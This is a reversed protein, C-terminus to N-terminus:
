WINTWTVTIKLFKINTQMVTLSLSMFCNCLLCKRFNGIACSTEMIYCPSEHATISRSQQKFQICEPATLFLSDPQRAYNPSLRVAFLSTAPELGPGAMNKRQSTTTFFIEVVM